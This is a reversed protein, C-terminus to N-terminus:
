NVICTGPDWQTGSDRGYDPSGGNFPRIIIVEDNNTGKFKFVARAM